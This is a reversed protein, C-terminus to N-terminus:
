RAPLCPRTGPRRFRPADRRQPELLGVRGSAPTEPMSPPVPPTANRAVSLVRSVCLYGQYIVALEPAAPSPTWPTAQNRSEPSTQTGSCGQPPTWLAADPGRGRSVQPPSQM